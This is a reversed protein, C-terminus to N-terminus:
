NLDEPQMLEPTHEFMSIFCLSILVNSCCQFTPPKQPPFFPCNDNQYNFNQAPVTQDNTAAGGSRDSRWM